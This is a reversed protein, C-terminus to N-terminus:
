LFFSFSLKDNEGSDMAATHKHDLGMSHVIGMKLAKSWKSICKVPNQFWTRKEYLKDSEEIVSILHSAQRVTENGKEDRVMIRNPGHTTRLVLPDM